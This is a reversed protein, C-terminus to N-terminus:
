HPQSKDLLDLLESESVSELGDRGRPLSAYRRPITADRCSFQIIPRHVKPNLYGSTRGHSAIEATWVRGEQDTFERM